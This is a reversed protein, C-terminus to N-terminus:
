VELNVITLTVTIDAASGENNTVKAYINTSPTGDDNWGIVGPTMKFTSIGSTTTYVEALVGAGPLPDTLYSRSEDSTRSDTDTYIRVWAASSIGVKLLSYSKAGTITIDATLGAGISGTAASVESRSELGSSTVTVIGASVPSVSLGTSFDITGATGVLSGSDKIILSTGGGGGGGEILVNAIGTIRGNADVTIQPVATGNGYTNASAGTLGTLNAASGTTSLLGSTSLGVYDESALGVTALGVFTESALGSTSLGLQTGVYDQSAFGATALGVFAESALGATALGVYDESALGVTALGVFTESALGSTSIGATALGVYDESALGSTALGLQTGVYDQSAFGATALGVYDESALGATALGLQTGVYDESALGSTSIGATALGVYDESALGSTALGLQTGVYDESALGSTSIGTVSVTVIGASVPSVSLNTSFDITGATGVISGNDKIIVSTGGGGGGTIVVNSIDTIRGNADVTIQPVSSSNGYTAASAGTLGTLNAASGTTSLLGDTIGATALGVFAESALGATALGVSAVTAYTGFDSIQSETITLAAEHATVDGQTVTYGTIYGAGNTLQNNNTPITPKDFLDNYSGSFLTPKNSLDNYNGSFLAPKDSLDNYSGTFTQLGVYEQSALGSTSIGSVSVTVIGASIPTVSLNTGFDITGSAGVLSGSDRIIVSTGGGGGLADAGIWKGTSSQYQLYKGDVKVSDRDVDDLFELRVEGGGGLSALQEQLRGVLIQYHNRLQEINVPKDLLPDGTSQKEIQECLRNYKVALSNLKDEILTLDVKPTKNIEYFLDERLSVIEESSKSVYEEVVSEVEGRYLENFISKVEKNKIYEISGEVQALYNHRERVEAVYDETLDEKSEGGETLTSRWDYKGDESNKEPSSVVNVEDLPVGTKKLDEDLNKIKQDINKSSKSHDISKRFLGM